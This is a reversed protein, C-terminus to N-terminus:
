SLISIPNDKHKTQNPTKLKIQVKKHLHMNVSKKIIMEFHISAFM